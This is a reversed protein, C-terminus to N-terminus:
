KPNGICERDVNAYQIIVLQIILDNLTSVLPCRDREEMLRPLRNHCNDDGIQVVARFSPRWVSVFNPTRAVRLEIVPNMVFQQRPDFGAYASERDCIEVAEACDSGLYNGQMGGGNFAEQDLTVGNSRLAV